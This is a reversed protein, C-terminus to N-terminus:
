AGFLNIITNNVFNGSNLLLTIEDIAATGSWFGNIAGQYMQGDSGIGQFSGLLAKGWNTNAYEPIVCRNAGTGGAVSTGGSLYMLVASTVAKHGEAFYGGADQGLRGWTYNNGGDGNFNVGVAANDGAYDSRGIIELILEHYTNPISSITETNTTGDCVIQDILTFGGGGGGGSPVAFGGNANLFKTTDGDGTPVLGPTSGLFIPPSLGM